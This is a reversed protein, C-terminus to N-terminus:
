ALLQLCKTLYYGALQEPRLYKDFYARSNRALRERADSDRVYRECLEVLDSLDDRAFVVHEGDVLPVPLQTRHPWAVVCSGIALYDILRFCFDGIGPLDLCVKARATERLYRTSPVYQVSGEYVFSKQESLLRVAEQRIRAPGAPTGPGWDISFRGYVDFAFDNRDRVRRLHPLFPSLRDIPAYGGPIVHGIGYGERLYQLKFYVPCRAACEADIERYDSYDIAVEHEIGDVTVGILLVGTYPQDIAAPEVAVLQRLGSLVPDVFMRTFAWPYSAPWRITLRQREAEPLPWTPAVPELSVSRFRWFADTAIRLLEAPRAQSVLRRDLRM